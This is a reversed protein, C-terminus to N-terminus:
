SISNYKATLSLFNGLAYGGSRPDPTEEAGKRVFEKPQGKIAEGNRQVTKGSM